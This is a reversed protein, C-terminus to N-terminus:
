LYISVAAPSTSVNDRIVLNEVLFGTASYVKFLAFDRGNGSFTSQEVISNRIEEIFLGSDRHNTFTSGIVHLNILSSSNGDNAM